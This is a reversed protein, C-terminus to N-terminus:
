DHCINDDTWCNLRSWVQIFLYLFVSRSHNKQRFNNAQLIRGLRHYIRIKHLFLYIFWVSVNIFCHYHCIFVASLYFFLQISLFAMQTLPWNPITGPSLPGRISSITLWCTVFERERKWGFNTRLKVNVMSILFWKIDNM